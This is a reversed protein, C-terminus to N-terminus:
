ISKSHKETKMTMNFAPLVDKFNWHHDSTDLVISVQSANKKNKRKRQYNYKEDFHPDYDLERVKKNMSSHNYKERKAELISRKEEKAEPVLDVKFEEKLKNSKIDKDILNM